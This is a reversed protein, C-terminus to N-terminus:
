HCTYECIFDCLWSNLKHSVELSTMLSSLPQPQSCNKHATQSCHCNACINGVLIARLIFSKEPITICIGMEFYNWYVYSYFCLKYKEVVNRMSCLVTWGTVVAVVWRKSTEVNWVKWWAWEGSFLGHPGGIHGFLLKSNLQSTPWTSVYFNSLFIM